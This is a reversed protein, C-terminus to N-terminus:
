KALPMLIPFPVGLRKEKMEKSPFLFVVGGQFKLSQMLFNLFYVTGYFHNESIVPNLRYLINKHM